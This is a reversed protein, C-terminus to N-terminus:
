NKVIGFHRLVEALKKIPLGVINEYDGEYKEIFKRGRGQIAYAGAKGIPERTKIYNDIEWRTLKKFYVTSKESYSIIKNIKTDIVTFGTVVLHSTGSLKLLMRKAESNNRAKGMLEKKWVVFTDAGIIISDKFKKAVSLAKGCSLRKALVEPEVSSDVVEKFNSKVAKFPFGLKKMLAKRRASTSALIIKRM